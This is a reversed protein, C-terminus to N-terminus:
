FDTLKRKLHRLIGPLKRWMEPLNASVGPMDIPKITFAGGLIHEGDEPKPVEVPGHAQTSLQQLLQNSLQLQNITAHQLQLRLAATALKSRLSYVEDVLEFVSIDNNEATAVSFQSDGPLSLYADLAERIKELAEGPNTPVVTFLVNRASHQLSTEAEIGLDSLFQSFYVLYQECATRVEPPFEFTRSVSEAKVTKGWIDDWAESIVARVVERCRETFESALEEGSTVKFEFEMQEEGVVLDLRLWDKYESRELISSVRTTFDTRNRQAREGPGFWLYYVISITDNDLGFFMSGIHIAQDLLENSDYWDVVEIELWGFRNMLSSITEGLLILGAKRDQVFCGLGGDDPHVTSNKYLEGNLVLANVSNGNGKTIQQWAVDLM